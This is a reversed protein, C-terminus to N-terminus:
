MTYFGMYDGMGMESALRQSGTLILVSGLNNIVGMFFFLFWFGYKYKNPYSNTLKTNTNETSSQETPKEVNEEEQVLPQHGNNDAM